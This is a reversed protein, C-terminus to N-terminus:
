CNYPAGSSDSCDCACVHPDKDTRCYSAYANAGSGCGTPCKSACDVLVPPSTTGSPVVPISSLKLLLYFAQNQYILVLTLEVQQQTQLVIM